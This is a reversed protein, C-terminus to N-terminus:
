KGVGALVPASIIEKLYYAKLRDDYFTYPNESQAYSDNTVYLNMGNNNIDVVMCGAQNNTIFELGRNYWKDYALHECKANGFFTMKPKLVDLFEYSRGSDRGHHPAILLDIDRISKEHMKLIHEWTKDNSDGGFIIRYNCSRYLIVYSCDNYDGTENASKLLSITPALIHLGDGGGGNDDLNFYKNHTGSYIALRKPNTDSKGDRLKLYFKWDDENYPAGEGFDKKANNDTDWFNGPGFLDFFLKIGDMHDMDPHTLIFRFVSLINHRIMYDIPNVPCQKQNFNGRVSELLQENTLDIQSEEEKANCVDIVTVRGSNHQIISCDGQKVNLFHLVSM